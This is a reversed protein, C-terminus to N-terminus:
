RRDAREGLAEASAVLRVRSGSPRFTARLVPTARECAALEHHEDVVVDLDARSPELRQQAGGALMRARLDEGARDAGAQLPRAGREQPRSSGGIM